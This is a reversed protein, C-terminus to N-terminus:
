GGSDIVLVTVDDGLPEGPERGSRAALRTLLTTAFADVDQDASGSLLDRLREDGLQEGAPSMAEVAGDTYLLLRDGPAFSLETARYAALRVRGLPLSEQREEHVAGEGGSWRLLPPHGRQGRL